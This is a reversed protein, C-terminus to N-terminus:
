KGNKALEIIRKAIININRETKELTGVVAILVNTFKAKQEGKLLEAVQAVRKPHAYFLMRIADALQHCYYCLESTNELALLPHERVTKPSYAYWWHHLATNKIENRWKSKRCAECVGKRPDYLLTVTIGKGRSGAYRMKYKKPKMIKPDSKGSTGSTGSIRPDSTMKM